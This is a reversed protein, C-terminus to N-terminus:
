QEPAAADYSLGIITYHGSKFNYSLNRGASKISADNHKEDDNVIGLVTFRKGDRDLCPTGVAM